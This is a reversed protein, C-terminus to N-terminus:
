RLQRQILGSSEQPGDHHHRGGGGSFKSGYITIMADDFAGFGLDLTGDATFIGGRIFITFNAEAEVDENM